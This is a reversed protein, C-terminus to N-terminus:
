SVSSMRIPTAIESTAETHTPYFTFAILLSILRVTRRRYYGHQLNNVGAGSSTELDDELRYLHDSGDETSDHQDVEVLMSDENDVSDSHDDSLQLAQM